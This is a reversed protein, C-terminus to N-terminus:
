DICYFQIINFPIIKNAVTCKRLAAKLEYNAPPNGTKLHHEVLAEDCSLAQDVLVPRYKDSIEQYDEPIDAQVIRICYANFCLDAASSLCPFIRVYDIM